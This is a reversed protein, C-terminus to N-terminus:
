RIYQVRRYDPDTVNACEVGWCRCFNEILHAIHGVALAFHHTPGEMSWNEIFTGVNPAFRCRTNTNGTAPIPGPLSEGEAVVFKFKGDYETSLKEVVPAIMKCPGCWPAYFDILVPLESETVQAEFDNDTIEIVM